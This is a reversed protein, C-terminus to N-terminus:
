KKIHSSQICQKITTNYVVAYTYVAWIIINTIVVMTHDNSYMLLLHLEVGEDTRSRYDGETAIWITNNM